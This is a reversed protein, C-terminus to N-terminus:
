ITVVGECIEKHYLADGNSVVRLIHQTVGIGVSVQFARESMAQEEMSFSPPVNGDLAMYLGLGLALLILDKRKREPAKRGALRKHVVAEWRGSYVYMGEQKSITIEGIYIRERTGIACTDRVRRIHRREGEIDYSSDSGSDRM